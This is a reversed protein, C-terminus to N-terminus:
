DQDVCGRLRSQLKGLRGGPSRVYQLLPTLSYPPLPALTLLPALPLWLPCSRLSPPLSPPFFLPHPPPPPISPSPKLYRTPQALLAQPTDFEAVRGHDLVLVRDSDLITNLRHAVTLCTAGKFEECSM